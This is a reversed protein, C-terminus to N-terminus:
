GYRKWHLIGAVGGCLFTWGIIGSPIVWVFSGPWEFMAGCIGVALAWGASGAFWGILTMDILDPHDNM